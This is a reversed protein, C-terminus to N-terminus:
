MRLGLSQEYESRANITMKAIKNWAENTNALAEQCESKGRLFALLNDALIARYTETGPMRPESILSDEQLPSGNAAVVRDALTRGKATTAIMGGIQSRLAELTRPQYIWQLFQISQATQQCQSTVSGIIGSGDNYANSTVLPIFQASDLQSTELDLHSPSILAFGTNQTQAIWQWATSHSGIVSDVADLQCALSKLLNGAFVFEGEHLRATLTRIDFLVGYKANSSSNGFAISLFRDVLANRDVRTDDFEVAKREVTLSDQLQQWTLNSIKVASSGILNIMSYGLPLGYMTGDYSSAAVLAPFVPPIDEEVSRLNADPKALQTLVSPLKVIWQRKHLEGIMRSPYLLLDADCKEQALLEESSLYRIDIPQESNANWQRVITQPDRVSGIVLIRLPVTSAKVTNGASVAPGTQQKQGSPSCGSLGLCWSGGGALLAAEILRHQFRRRTITFRTM